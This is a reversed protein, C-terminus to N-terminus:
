ILRAVVDATSDQWRPLRVGYAEALKQCDLRSNVPRKALTPYASSPIREVSASPGGRAAACAFIEDAFDAWSAEGTGTMHFLGRLRAEDSDLLNGAISIVADAIDLASTPNGVQDDVVNLSNRTEAAKLMTRLFNKGFPSYVWATRLIAHNHHATAVADEGSRKSRGYAGIPTVPDAEVYASAKTGDFVYDTSLHIVPVGLSAATAAIIGVSTGNVITAAEEDTEAQDVSTYAAASVIVDPRAGRLAAEVTEPRSLDLAPRGVALVEFRENRTAREVLSSVVQGERGTVVMRQRARIM